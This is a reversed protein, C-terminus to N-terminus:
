YHTRIIVKLCFTANKSVEAPESAAFDSFIKVNDLWLRVVDEIRHFDICVVTVVTASPACEKGGEAAFEAVGCGPSSVTSSYIDGADAVPLPFKM